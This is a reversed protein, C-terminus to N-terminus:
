NEKKHILLYITNTSYRLSVAAEETTLLASTHIM